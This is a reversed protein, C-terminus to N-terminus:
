QCGLSQGGRFRDHVDAVQAGRGVAFRKAGLGQLLRDVTAAVGASARDIERGARIQGARDEQFAAHRQIEGGARRQKPLGRM